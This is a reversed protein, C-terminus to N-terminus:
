QMHTATEGTLTSAMLANSYTDITIHVYKLKGFELFHTVDM